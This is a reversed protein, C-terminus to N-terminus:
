AGTRSGVHEEVRKWNKGFLSIGEIFLVHEEKMWRGQNGDNATGSTLYELEKPMYTSNAPLENFNEQSQSDPERSGDTGQETELPVNQNLQNESSGVSLPYLNSPHSMLDQNSNDMNLSMLHSSFKATPHLSQAEALISPNNTTEISGSHM